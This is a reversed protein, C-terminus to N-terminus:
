RRQEVAELTAIKDLLEDASGQYVAQGTPNEGCTVQLRCPDERGAGVFFILVIHDRNKRKQAFAINDLEIVTDGLRMKM